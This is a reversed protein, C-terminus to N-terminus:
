NFDPDFQSLIKKAEKIQNDVSKVILKADPRKPNINFKDTLFKFFDSITNHQARLKILSQLKHAAHSMNIVDSRYKARLGEDLEDVNDIISSM